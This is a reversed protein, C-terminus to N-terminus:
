KDFGDAWDAEASRTNVIRWFAIGEEWQSDEWVDTKGDARWRRVENPKVPGWRVPDGNVFAAFCENWERLWGEEQDTLGGTFGAGWLWIPIDTLHTVGWESPITEEVCRLCREFRYRFVDKGPQLGGEFLAHHFGRELHHVQVCAYLRGFFDRWSTYGSPLKNAPGCYHRMLARTVPPAYEAYLREYVATYSDEPTRWRGYMTHEDKCEGNLLTIGRSKMRRAFQGDNIRDVLDRPYFLDDALVRFESIKMESQVEILRQYPLARLKALKAKDELDRPIGLVALFEDFQEQQDHLSKPRVGPGNSFMAVRRIIAKEAPVHWLEHALQQFASYAGASYGAVTINAPNGGFRSINDHTWELAARQDWLGMNGTADRCADAEAALERGALFGLANLRYSPLVMIAQFASDSLLPVLSEPNLNATGVQLFGGHIYFCVPWGDKPAPRAPVWINLQLCDEDVVAADPTNSSPPQPCVWSGRTFQGPEAATGYQYDAPLRRPMRFRWQGTPPLAYPLGGFYRVTPTGDSTITLGEIYGLQAADFRYEERHYRM